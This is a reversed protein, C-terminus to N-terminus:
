SDASIAWVKSSQFTKGDFSHHLWKLSKEYAAGSSLTYPVTVLVVNVLSFYAIANVFSVILGKEPVSSGM